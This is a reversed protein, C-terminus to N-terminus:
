GWGMKGYTTDKEKNTMATRVKEKEKKKKKEHECLSYREKVARIYSQIIVAADNNEKEKKQIIKKRKETLEKLFQKEEEEAKKRIIISDLEKEAMKNKQLEKRCKELEADMTTIDNDITNIYNQIDLELLKNKKVLNVELDQYTRIHNEYVNKTKEYLSNINELDDSVNNTPMKNILKKINEESCQKLEDLEKEKNQLIRELEKLENQSKKRIYELEDNLKKEEVQINKEEEKLEDMRESRKFNEEATTQFKTLFIDNQRNARNQINKVIKKKKKKKIVKLNTIIHLFKYFDHNEKDNLSNLTNILKHNKKFINCLSACYNKIKKLLEEHENYICLCDDQLDEESANGDQTEEEEESRIVQTHEYLKNLKIIDKFYILFEEPMENLGSGNLKELVEENIFSLNKIKKEFTEIVNYLIKAEVDIFKAEMTEGKEQERPREVAM